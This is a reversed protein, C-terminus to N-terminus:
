FWRVTEVKSDEILDLIESNLYCFDCETMVELNQLKVRDGIFEPMFEFIEQLTVESHGKIERHFKRAVQEAKIRLLAFEEFTISNHLLNSKIAKKGIEEFIQHPQDVLRFVLTDFIDLSLLKITKDNIRKINSQRLM